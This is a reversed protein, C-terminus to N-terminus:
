LGSIWLIILFIGGTEHCFKCGQRRGALSNPQSGKGAVAIDIDGFEDGRVKRIDGMRKVHPWHQELVQVCFADNEVQSVVEIM